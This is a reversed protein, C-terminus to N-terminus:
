RVPLVRGAGGRGPRALWAAAALIVLQVAAFAAMAPLLGARDALAGAAMVPIAFGGYAYVFLGAVARARDEGARQSVESLASLYTFGYSSASTLATGALVLPVSHLAAGALLALFGPPILCMGLSLAARNGMRRARPQCLFGTFLALFIVFGSWGGLGQRALLLPVMAITMGTSAWSLALVTGFIATGQPFVPRRLLPVRRPRDARPLRLCALALLPAAMLYGWYSAPMLSPGQLLLSTGTALAGGGFGLSTASTVALAARAERGPGALEAMYAAGATTALGTGAGLLLRAAALSAWGPALALLLTAATGLLLAAALPLRRGIRDSLGGLCLLVPMLGAAYAAISLAAATAEMRTGAVYAPVLPAQLNVAFTVAFLSAALLAAAASRPRPM